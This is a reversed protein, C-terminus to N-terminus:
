HHSTSPSLGTTLWSTIETASLEQSSLRLQQSAGQVKFAHNFPESAFHQGLNHLLLPSTPALLAATQFDGAHRLLPIHLKELYAADNATDFGAVDAVLPFPARFFPRALLCWLGALGQGAIVIREPRWAEELYVLATLVDQVRQADDTRNYTSFFPGDMKRSRDIAEGTQFADISFLLYGRKSLERALPAPSHASGLAAGAGEQHVILAASKIRGRPILLSAPIREQVSARGLIIRQWKESSAAKEGAQTPQPWWRMEDPSPSEAMLAARFAPGFQKRYADLDSPNQPLSKELRQRAGAVLYEALQKANPAEDPVQRRSFALLHGPDVSFIGQEKPGEADTKLPEKRLWRAFFQYVAERSSRNYNHLAPIQVYAVHDSSGFLDYIARIAPYEIRPTDRTWDGTASVMLMPRPAAIAGIEVNDTDIRLNPANECTCGGQMFHSIMNVPACVRVREDVATLLFAQTGGGSAGTVAIRQTDVDPLSCLFDIARISNWLQLGLLSIGWLGLRLGEQSLGWLSKADRGWDHPVQFSDNYGVMDYAFSVYGQLAFNLCRQPVSCGNEDGPSHELRGYTWHGHPCVVGPFPPRASSGQPRYLNGTCFFRPYSEFYVKEVSYSELDIRDFVEARLPTKEPLPWLGAAALIQERVRPARAEWGLRSEFQAPARPTDLTRVELRRDRAPLDRPDSASLRPAEGEGGGGSRTEAGGAARPGAALLSGVGALFNRRSRDKM